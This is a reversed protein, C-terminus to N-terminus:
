DSIKRFYYFAILGDLCYTILQAIVAGIIGLLPVFVIISILRITSSIFSIKYLVPTTAKALLSVTILKRPIFLVILGLLQSYFIAEVYQPFFIKYFYPALIIYTLTIPIALLFLKLMKTPLNSKIQKATQPMIKPTAIPIIMKLVSNIENIPAMAFYYIALSTGGLLQFLLIKDLHSTITAVGNMLSLHPANKLRNEARKSLTSKHIKFKKIVFSFAVLVLFGNIIFYASTLTYVQPSVFLVIILVLASSASILSSLLSADKFKKQGVLFSNYLGAASSILTYIFALALGYALLYNQRFLYYLSLSGGIIIIIIGWRLNKKFARLLIADEGRSSEQTVITSSGSLSFAGLMGAMTMIYKYNGFNEAPMLNAFTIALLFSAIMALLHGISLWFGGKTLYIMDTKTYRESWRLLRYLQYRLKEM